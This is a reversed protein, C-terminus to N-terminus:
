ATWIHCQRSNKQSETPLQKLDNLIHKRSEINRERDKLQDQAKQAKGPAAM